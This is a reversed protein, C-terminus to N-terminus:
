KNQAPNSPKAHGEECVESFVDHAMQDNEPDLVVRKRGEIAVIKSYGKRTAGVGAVIWFLGFLVKEARDLLIEELLKQDSLVLTQVM